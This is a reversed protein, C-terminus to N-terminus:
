MDEGHLISFIPSFAPLMNKADKFDDSCCRKLIIFHSADYRKSGKKNTWRGRSYKVIEKGDVLCRIFVLEGKEMDWQVNVLHNQGYWTVRSNIEKSDM